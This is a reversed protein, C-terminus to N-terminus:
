ICSVILRLTGHVIVSKGAHVFFSEGASIKETVSDAEIWGEGSLCVLSAFHSDEIHLKQEGNVEYVIEFYKCRSLM